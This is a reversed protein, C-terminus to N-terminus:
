EETSSHSRAPLLLNNGQFVIGLAAGRDLRRHLEEITRLAESEYCEGIPLVHEEVDAGEGRDPLARWPCQEDARLLDLAAQDRLLGPRHTDGRDEDATRRHAGVDEDVGGPRFRDLARDERAM